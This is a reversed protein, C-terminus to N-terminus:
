KEEDDCNIRSIVENQPVHVFRQEKCKDRIYIEATELRPFSVSLEHCDGLACNYKVVDYWHPEFRLRFIDWWKNRLSQVYFLHTLEGYSNKYRKVVRYETVM